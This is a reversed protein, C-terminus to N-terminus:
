FRPAHTHLSTFYVYLYVFFVFVCLPVVVYHDLQYTIIITICVIIIVIILMYYAFFPSFFVLFFFLLFCFTGLPVKAPMLICTLRPLILSFCHPFLSVM